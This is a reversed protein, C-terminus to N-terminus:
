RCDQPTLTILYGFTELVVSLPLDSEGDNQPMQWCATMTKEEGPAISFCNGTGEPSNEESGDFYVFETANAKPAGLLFETKGSKLQLLSTADINKIDLKCVLFFYADSGSSNNLGFFHGDGTPLGTAEYDDYLRADTVTVDMSGQLETFALADQDDSSVYVAEGQSYTRASDEEVRQAESAARAEDQQRQQEKDFRVATLVIAAVIILVAAASIMEKKRM